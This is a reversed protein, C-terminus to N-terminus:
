NLTESTSWQFGVYDNTLDICEDTKSDAIKVHLRIIKMRGDNIKEKRKIEELYKNTKSEM